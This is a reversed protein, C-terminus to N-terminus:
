ARARKIIDRIVADDQVLLVIKREMTMGNGALASYKFIHM